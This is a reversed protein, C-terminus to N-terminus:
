EVAYFANISFSFDKLYPLPGSIIRHVIIPMYEGTQLKDPVIINEGYNVKNAEQRIVEKLDISTDKFTGDSNIVPHIYNTFAYPPNFLNVRVSTSYPETLKARQATKDYQIGLFASEIISLSTSTNVIYIVRFDNYVNVSGYEPVENFVNTPDVILSFPRGGLSRLNYRPESYESNYFGLINAM